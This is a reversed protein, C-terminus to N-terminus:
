WAKNKARYADKMPSERQRLRWDYLVDDMAKGGPLVLSCLFQRQSRDHSCDVELTNWGAKLEVPIPEAVSGKKGSRVTRSGVDEGNVRVAMKLRPASFTRTSLRVEAKRVTPVFIRRFVTLTENTSGFFSQFPDVTAASGWGCYDWSPSLMRWEGGNNRARWPAPIGVTKVHTGGVTQAVLRIQTMARNPAGRVTFYGRTGDFYRPETAFPVMSVTNTAVVQWGEPLDISVKATGCEAKLHWSIEYDFVDADPRLSSVLATQNVSFADARALVKEAERRVEGSLLKEAEWEGLADAMARAIAAHGLGWSPHVFDGALHSKWLRRAEDNLPDLAHDIEVVGCKEDKALARIRSNMERRIENKRSQPDGTLPSITCLLVRRPRLRARLTAIFGRYREIWETQSADDSTIVPRLIDNMGLFVVVIDAGADFVDKVDWYKGCTDYRFGKSRTKKETEIWSPVHWGSFGLPIITAHDTGHVQAVANTLRHWYGGNRVGLGQNTLSDGIIVMREGKRLGLEEIHGEHEGYRAALMASTDAGIPEMEFRRVYEPSFPDASFPVVSKPRNARHFIGGTRQRYVNGNFRFANEPAPPCRAIIAGTSGDFINREVIFGSVDPPSSGLAVVPALHERGVCGWGRGTRLCINDAFRVNEVSSGPANRMNYYELAWFCNEIRNSVFEVDKMRCVFDTRDNCQITAGTDYIQYIWNNEVRFGDCGGWIEVGNGFRATGFKWGEIISGGIWDIVCNRVTINTRAGSGGVGHTGSLTLHLNEVTIGSGKIWICHGHQGIEIRRFREGPNGADSRLELVDEHFLNRFTLDADLEVPRDFPEDRKPLRMQAFTRDYAGLVQPDHDFLVIGVNHLKETCRWVNSECTPKWLSPDAYNRKSACLTPLPGEGWAGYTVGDRGDIRGRFLDGRRFLVKDGPKLDLANVRAMVDGDSASFRYVSPADLRKWSRPPLMDSGSLDPEGLEGSAVSVVGTKGDFLEIISGPLPLSAAQMSLSAVALSFSVMVSRSM